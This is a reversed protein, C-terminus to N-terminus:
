HSHTHTHTVQRMVLTSDKCPMSSADDDQVVMTKAAVMEGNSLRSSGGRSDEPGSTSEEGVDQDVEEDDEDDTTGSDDSSSSYDTAKHQPRVDEVARLEKALATLDQPDAPRHSPEAASSSGNSFPESRPPVAPPQKQMVAAQPSGQVSRRHREDVRKM